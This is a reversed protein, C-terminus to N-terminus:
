CWRGTGPPWCNSLPRTAPPSAASCSPTPCARPARRRPRAASTASCTTSPAAPWTEGLPATRGVRVLARRRAARAVIEESDPALGRQALRGRLRQRARTLRSEVTGVPRGLAWAIEPATRGELHFLVFPLRYKEPLRSVEEDIVRRAERRAAEEEPGPGRALVSEDLPRERGARSARRARARLAVRYAVTHLWGAASRCRAAAPAKKALILFTAQFADEAEHADGLVGRCVDLVMPGHRWALLEFAAEDGAAFRELLEADAVALGGKPTAAGGFPSMLNYSRGGVM